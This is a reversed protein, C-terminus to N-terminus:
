QVSCISLQLSIFTKNTLFFPFIATPLCRATETVQLFPSPVPLSERTEPTGICPCLCPFLFAPSLLSVRAWEMQMCKRLLPSWLLLSSSPCESYIHKWGPTFMALHDQITKSALSSCPLPLSPCSTFMSWLSTPLPSKGECKREKGGEKGTCSAKM